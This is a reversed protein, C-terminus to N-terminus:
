RLDRDTRMEDLDGEWSLKGFYGLARSQRKQRLLAQLGQQVVERKTRAGSVALAEAMLEDDIDINTRM